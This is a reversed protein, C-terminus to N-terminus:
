FNAQHLIFAILSLEGNTPSQITIPWCCSFPSHFFVYQHFEVEAISVCHLNLEVACLMELSSVMALYANLNVHIIKWWGFLWSSRFSFCECVIVHSSPCYDHVTYVSVYLSDTHLWLYWAIGSCFWLVYSLAHSAFTCVFHRFALEIEMMDGLRYEYAECQQQSIHSHARTDIKLSRVFQYLVEVGCVYM